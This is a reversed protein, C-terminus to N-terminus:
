SGRPFFHQQLNITSDPQLRMGLEKALFDESDLYLRWLTSRRADKPLMRREFCTGKRFAADDVEAAYQPSDLLALLSAYRGAGSSLRSLCAERAAEQEVAGAFLAGAAKAAFQEPSLEAGFEASDVLMEMMQSPTKRGLPDAWANVESEGPNRGLWLRYLNKLTNM